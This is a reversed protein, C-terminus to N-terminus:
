CAWCVECISSWFWKASGFWCRKVKRWGIQIQVTVCVMPTLGHMVKFTLEPWEWIWSELSHGWFKGLLREWQLLRNTYPCTKLWGPLIWHGAAQCYQSSSSITTYLLMMYQLINSCVHPNKFWTAHFAILTQAISAMFCKFLRLVSTRPVEEM